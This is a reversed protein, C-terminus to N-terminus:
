EEFEKTKKFVINNEEDNLIEIDPLLLNQIDEINLQSKSKQLLLNKVNSTEFGFIKDRAFITENIPPKILLTHDM